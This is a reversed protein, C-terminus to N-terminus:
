DVIIMFTMSVQSWKEDDRLDWFKALLQMRQDQFKQIQNKNTKNKAHSKSDSKAESGCSLLLCFTFAFILNMHIICHM